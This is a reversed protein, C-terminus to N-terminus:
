RGGRAKQYPNGGYEKTGPSIIIGVDKGGCKSCRLKPVLDDRMAGHDPGLKDRLALLDLAANHHCHSNHCYVHITDGLDIRQQITHGKMRVSFSCVASATLGARHCSRRESPESHDDRKDGGCDQGAGAEDSDLLKRVRATLSVM